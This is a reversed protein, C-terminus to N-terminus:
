EYLKGGNLNYQIPKLYSKRLAIVADMAVKMEEATLHKNKIQNCKGCCTTVNKFTYAGNPNLRDLGVGTEKKISAKCYFCPKLLFLLYCDITLDLKIGKSSCKYRLKDYRRKPEKAHIKQYESTRKSYRKANFPDRRYCIRSCFKKDKRKAEFVEQCSPCVKNIL